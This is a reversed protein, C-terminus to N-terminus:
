GPLRGDLRSERKEPHSRNTPRRVAFGPLSRGATTGANRNAGTHPRLAAPQYVVYPRYQRDHAGPVQQVRCSSLAAEGLGVQGPPSGRGLVVHAAYLPPRRASM